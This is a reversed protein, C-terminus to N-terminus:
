ASRLVGYDLLGRLLEPALELGHRSRVDELIAETERGDFLHLVGTIAHPIGVPDSPSHTIVTLGEENSGLLQWPGLTLREPLNEGTLRRHAELAVEASMRAEAGCLALAEGGSLAAVREACERFFAEQEGQRPQWLAATEAPDRPGALEAGRAVRDPRTEDLVLIAELATASFGGEAVCWRALADELSRLLRGVAGWFASGAAGREHKCFYTVCAHNRQQWIGCQGSEVQYHPCRHAASRGHALVDEPRRANWDPEVGLPSVRGTDELRRLLSRRGPGDPGALIGGVLFNPLTPTYTCCKTDPRFPWAAAPMEGDPSPCMVCSACTARREAAPPAPLLEELWRGYLPTLQAKEGDGGNQESVAGKGVPGCRRVVEGIGTRM